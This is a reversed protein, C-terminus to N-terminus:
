SFSVAGLFCKRLDQREEDLTGLRLRGLPKSQRVVQCWYQSLEERWTKYLLLLAYFRRFRQGALQQSGM